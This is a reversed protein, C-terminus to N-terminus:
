RCNTMDKEITVFETIIEPSKGQVLQVVNGLAKKQGVLVPLPNLLLQGAEYKSAPVLFEGQRHQLVGVLLAPQAKGVNSHLCFTEEELLGCLDQAFWVLDGVSM